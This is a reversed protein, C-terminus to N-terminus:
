ATMVAAAEAYHVELDHEYKLNRNRDRHTGTNYADGVQALTMAPAVLEPTPAKKWENFVRRGLYQVVWPLADEAEALGWPHGRYGLEWATPFMIQWASWSMAACEEYEAVLDRLWQNGPKLYYGGGRYYAPEFNPTYQKIGWSSENGTIAALLPRAEFTAGAPVVLSLCWHDIAALIKPDSIM